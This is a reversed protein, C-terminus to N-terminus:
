RVVGVGDTQPKGRDSRLLQQVAFIEYLESVPERLVVRVDEGDVAEGVAGEM